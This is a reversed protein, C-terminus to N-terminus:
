VLLACLNWVSLTSAWDLSLVEQPLAVMCVVASDVNTETYALRTILTKILCKWNLYVSTKIIHIVILQFNFIFTSGNPFLSDIEMVTLYNCVGISHKVSVAIKFVPARALWCFWLMYKMECLFCVCYGSKLFNKLALGLSIDVDWM